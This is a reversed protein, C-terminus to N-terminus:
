INSVSSGSLQGILRYDETTHLESQQQSIAHFLELSQQCRYLIEKCKM